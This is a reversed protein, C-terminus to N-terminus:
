MELSESVGDPRWPAAAYREPPVAAVEPFRRLVGGAASAEDRV